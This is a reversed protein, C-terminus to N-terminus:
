SLYSELSKLFLLEIDKYGSINSGSSKVDWINVEDDLDLWWLFCLSVDVSRTSSCTSSGRTLADSEVGQLLLHEDSHDFLFSSNDELFNSNRLRIIDDSGGEFLSDFIEVFYILTHELAELLCGIFQNLLFATIVFSSNGLSQSKEGAVM